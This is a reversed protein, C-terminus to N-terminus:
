GLKLVHSVDDLLVNVVQVLQHQVGLADVIVVPLENLVDLLFNLAQVLLM